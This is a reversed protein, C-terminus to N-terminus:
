TINTILHGTCYFMTYLFLGIALITPDLWFAMIVMDVSVKYVEGTTTYKVSNNLMTFFIPWRVLHYIIHSATMTAFIKTDITTSRLVVSTFIFMFYTLLWFLGGIIEEAAYYATDSFAILINNHMNTNWKFAWIFYLPIILAIAMIELLIIRSHIRSSNVILPQSEM